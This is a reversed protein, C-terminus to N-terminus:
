LGMVENWQKMVASEVFRRTILEAQMGLRHRLQPQEILSRIAAVLQPVDQAPVLLGNSGHDILESPGCPCDFSICARAVGMAELLVNPFGEVRSPLVFIDASKIAGFPQALQGRFCVQDAIGLTQAQAELASRLPGDGILELRWRPFKPFVQACATLLLDHGKEQTMRGMAIICGEWQPDEQASVAESMAMLRAQDIANPIVRVLEPEIRAGAWSRLSETQVVVASAHQYVLDRLHSWVRPIAYHEPNTREAVVVRVGLGVCALLTLVNTKDMFSLVVDPKSDRIAQRLRWYRLGVRYFAHISNHSPVPLKLRVRKVAEDLSYFDDASGYTILTVKHGHHAWFNAMGTMVREAGGSGLSSIVLTIKM